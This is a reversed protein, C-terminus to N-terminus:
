KIKEIRSPTDGGSVISASSLAIARIIETMNSMNLTQIEDDVTHYYPEDDMKSTSITHAPVGLKALTANDSRYFLDQEPYPDPNFRFPTGHLNKQLIKPMDSKNYGTIYASHSGWKSETGIMEINFMAVVSEPNIHNSLYDSGYGGLEEATFAVFILTRTNDKKSAFYDALLIVATTGSADDNAGNYISDHAANSSTVGLHDYHASFIVFENPKSKGPLVGVINELSKENIQQKFQFSFHNPMKNSLVFVINREKKLQNESLSELRHFTRSFSSDLFVVLNEDGQIWKMLNGQYNDGKKVQIVKYGSQDNLLLDNKSSFVVLNNPNIPEGDMSGEKSLGSVDVFSFSQKYSGSNEWTHLGAAKFQSVIFDAAKGIGKTGAARGEMKDSALTSEVQTVKQENILQSIDQARASFNLILSFSLAIQLK